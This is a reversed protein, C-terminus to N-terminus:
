FVATRREYETQTEAFITEWNAGGLKKKIDALEDSKRINFSLSEGDRQAEINLKKAQIYFRYDLVDFIEHSNIKVIEDGQKLGAKFGYSAETVSKIKVSM